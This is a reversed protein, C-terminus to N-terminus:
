QRNSRAYHDKLLKVVFDNDPKVVNINGLPLDEDHKEVDLPTYVNVNWYDHHKSFAQQLSQIGILYCSDVTFRGKADLSDVIKNCVDDILCFYRTAKTNVLLQKNEKMLKDWIDLVSGTSFLFNVGQFACCGNELLMDEMLKKTMGYVCAPNVSKDTSIGIVNKVGTELAATMVHRSGVVNVDVARTPNKECIGVHKLAASHVVYDVKHDKLIRKLPQYCDAVDLAYLPVDKSGKVSREFERISLESHATGVVSHGRVMLVETIRKGLFGAAGTVLVTSM